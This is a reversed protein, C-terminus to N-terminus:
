TPFFTNLSLAAIDFFLYTLKYSFYQVKIGKKTQKFIHNRKRSIESHANSILWGVYCLVNTKRTFAIVRTKGINLKMGNSSVWDQIRNIDSQLLIWDDASNKARFIKLDDAFLLFNSYEIATCLDNIFINFLLPGLVSGQPV